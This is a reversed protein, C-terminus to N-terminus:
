IEHLMPLLCGPLCVFPIFLLVAATLLIAYLMGEIIKQQKHKEKDLLFESVYSQKTENLASVFCSFADPGSRPLVVRVLNEVTDSITKKKKLREVDEATLIIKEFLYDIVRFPNVNEKLYTFNERLLEKHIEEM